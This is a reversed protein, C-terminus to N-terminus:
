SMKGTAPALTSVFLVGCGLWGMASIIHLYAFITIVVSPVDVYSM